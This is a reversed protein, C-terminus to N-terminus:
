QQIQTPDVASWAPDSFGPIDPGSRRGITDPHNPWVQEIGGRKSALPNSALTEPSPSFNSYEINLSTQVLVYKRDFRGKGAGMKERVLVDLYYTGALLNSTINSPIWLEYYGSQNTVPYIGLDLSGQWAVTYARPSTKLIALIDYDDSTVIEGNFLFLDYVIDEGQYFLDPNPTGREFPIGPISDITLSSNPLPAQSNRAKIVSSQLAVTNDSVVRPVSTAEGNVNPSFFYSVPEDAM